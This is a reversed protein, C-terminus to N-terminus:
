PDGGEPMKFVLGDPAICFIPLGGLQKADWIAHMGDRFPMDRHREGTRATCPVGDTQRVSPPKLAAVLETRKRDRGREDTYDRRVDHEDLRIVLEYHCQWNWDPRGTLREWRLQIRPAPMPGRHPTTRDSM